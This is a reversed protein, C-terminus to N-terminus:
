ETLKRLRERLTSATVHKFRSLDEVTTLPTACLLPLAEELGQRLHCLTPHPRLGELDIILEFTAAEIARVSEGVSSLVAYPVARGTHGQKPFRWLTHPSVGFDEAAKRRGHLAAYACM